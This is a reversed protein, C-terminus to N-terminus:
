RHWSSSGAREVVLIRRLTGRIRRHATRVQVPDDGQEARVPTTQRADEASIRKEDASPTM